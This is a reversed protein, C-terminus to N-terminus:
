LAILEAELGEASVSLKALTVPLAFRRPGASGPNVWLIGERKEIQPRHTHGSVVVQFRAESPDLEMTNLDHLVYIWTEGVQLTATAPLANAWDGRDVNGRVVTLPAIRRLEELVVPKGVDGAHIIHDVGALAQLAEARMLGHTDAIIGIQRVM